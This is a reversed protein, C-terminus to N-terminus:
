RELVRAVDANGHEVAVQLPTKWDANKARRDAGYRILVASVDALGTMAACHLPTSEDSMRQNVDAGAELLLEVTQLRHPQLNHFIAWHLASTGIVFSRPHLAPKHSLLCSVLKLSGYKVAYMLPTTKYCNRMNLEAGQALLFRVMRIDDAICAQHLPASSSMNIDPNIHAGHSLLLAAAEYQGNTAAGALPSLHGHKAPKFAEYLGKVVSGANILAGLSLLLSIQPLDGISSAAYLQSALSLKEKASRDRICMESGM